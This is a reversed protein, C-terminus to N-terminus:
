IHFRPNVFEREVQEVIFHETKHPTYDDDASVIIAHRIFYKANLVDISTM